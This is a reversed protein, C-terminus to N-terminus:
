DEVAFIFHIENGSEDAKLLSCLHFHLRTKVAFMALYCSSNWVCWLETFTSRVGRRQSRKLPETSGAASSWACSWVRSENETKALLRTGKSSFIASAEVVVTLDVSPNLVIHIWRDSIPDLWCMWGAWGLSMHNHWDAMKNWIRKKKVPIIMDNFFFFYYHYHQHLLFLSPGYPSSFCLWLINVQHRATRATPLCCRRSSGGRHHVPDEEVLFGVGIGVHDWQLGAFPIRHYLWIFVPAWGLWVPRPASEPQSEARTRGRVAPLRLWCELVNEKEWHGGIDEMRCDGKPYHRTFARRRPSTRNIHWVPPFCRWGLHHGCRSCVPGHKTQELPFSHHWGAWAPSSRVRQM